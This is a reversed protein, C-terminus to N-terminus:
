NPVRAIISTVVVKSKWAASVGLRGVPFRSLAFQEVLQGNVFLQARGGQRMLTLTNGSSWDRGTFASPLDKRDAVTDETIVHPVTLGGGSRRRGKNVTYVSKGSDWVYVYISVIDADNGRGILNIGLGSDSQHEEIRYKFDIVFDGGLESSEVYTTAGVWANSIPELVYSNGFGLNTSGQDTRKTEWTSFDAAYVQRSGGEFDAVAAPQPESEPRTVPPDVDISSYIWAFYLVLVVALVIAGRLLYRRWNKKKRGTTNSTSHNNPAPKNVIEGLTRRVAVLLDDVAASESGGRWSSLDVAQISRFGMPPEVSDLLIPLLMNRKKGEDAEDAVWQSGISTESWVTIICDANDIANGIYTRWTQGAPIDRDWFVDWGQNELISVLPRLRERDESSYSFFINYM